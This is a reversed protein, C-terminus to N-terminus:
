QVWRLLYVALFFKWLFLMLGFSQIQNDSKSVHANKLKQLFEYIYIIKDNTDNLTSVYFLNEIQQIIDNMVANSHQYEKINQELGKRNKNSQRLEKKVKKYKILLKINFIILIILIVIMCIYIKQHLSLNPILWSLIGTIGSLISILTLINSLINKM